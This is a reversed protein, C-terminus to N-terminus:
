RIELKRGEKSLEYVKLYLKNEKAQSARVSKMILRSKFSPESAITKTVITNSSSIASTMADNFAANSNMLGALDLFAGIGTTKTDAGAFIGAILDVPGIHLPYFINIGPTLQGVPDLVAFPVATGLMAIGPGFAFYVRAGTNAIPLAIVTSNQLGGVPLATGNPLTATTGPIKTVQTINLAIQLDGGNCNQGCLSPLMSLQGYVKTMDRPDAIPLNIGALQFGGTNLSITTSIWQDAGQSYTNLQVNTVVSEVAAGDKGCSALTFSMSALTLFCIGSRALQLKKASLM